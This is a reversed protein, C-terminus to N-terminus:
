TEIFKYLEKDECVEECIQDIDLSEVFYDYQVDFLLSKQFTFDNLYIKNDVFWKLYKYLQKKTSRLPLDYVLKYSNNNTNAILQVYGSESKLYPAQYIYWNKYDIKIKKIIM